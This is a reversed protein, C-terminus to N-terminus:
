TLRNAHVLIREFLLGACALVPAYDLRILGNINAQRQQLGLPM